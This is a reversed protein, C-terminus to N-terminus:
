DDAGRETEVADVGEIAFPNENEPLHRVGDLELRNGERARLVPQRGGNELTVDSLRLLGFRRVDLVEQDRRDERLSISVRELTLEFQRDADGLVRLPRAIGTARVNVFRLRKAPQGTQWLGREFDYAYVADANDITINEVLWNDSPLKPNRDTPAFHVFASLMNRRESVLHQHEGPGWFTCDRVVLNVCGLRFGNCSSNIKCGTVEFDENDCGALCDDGTRFDCDRVTFRRCAQAHLADHGARAAVGVFRADDCDRCLVAYNGADTISVGEVAIDRCGTLYVAHPGRFGEEGKPNRCDGGDIKGPGEIRIGTVDQGTILADHWRGEGYDRWDGSGALVAGAELLLCVHDRLVLAGCRFRGEPIRVTGGGATGCTDIAAQIAATQLRDEGPVAGYRTVPYEGGRTGEDAPACPVAGAIMSAAALTGGAALFARRTPLGARVESRRETM